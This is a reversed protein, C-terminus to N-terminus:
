DDHSKAIFSFGLIGAFLIVNAVSWGALVTVDLEDTLNAAQALRHPMWVVEDEAPEVADHLLELCRRPLLRRVAAEACGAPFAVGASRCRPVPAAELVRRLVGMRLLWASGNPRPLM